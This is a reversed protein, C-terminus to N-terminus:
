FGDTNSHEVSKIFAGYDQFIPKSKLFAEVIEDREDGSWDLWLSNVTQDDRKAFLTFFPGMETEKPWRGYRQRYSGAYEKAENLYNKKRLEYHEDLTRIVRAPNGAVVVDAPINGGVVSGAGIIVNDGIKTGMLIIANMGIFVNNGIVTKGAEGIIDGYKRRIVSRSYDHQLIVTGRTIKCYEGIELMWPRQRDIFTEAPEFFYTKKGVLIDESKLIENFEAPSILHPFFKRKFKLKIGKLM